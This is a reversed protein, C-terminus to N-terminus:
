DCIGMEEYEDQYHYNELEKRTTQPKVIPLQKPLDKLHEDLLAVHCLDLSIGHIGAIKNACYYRKGMYGPMIIYRKEKLLFQEM